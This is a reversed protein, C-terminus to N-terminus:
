CLKLIVMRGKMQCFILAPGMPRLLTHGFFRQSFALFDTKQSRKKYNESSYIFCIVYSVKDQVADSTLIEFSNSLM